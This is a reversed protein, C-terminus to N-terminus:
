GEPSDPSRKTREKAAMKTQDSEEGSRRGEVEAYNLLMLMIIVGSMFDIKSEGANFPIPSFLFSGTM